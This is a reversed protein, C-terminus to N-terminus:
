RGRQGGDVRLVQGTVMASQEGALFCVVKAVEQPTAARQIAGGNILADRSIDNMQGYMDTVTVTPAVANVRIGFQGLERAMVATLYM